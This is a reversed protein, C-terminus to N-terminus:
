SLWHKLIKRLKARAIHLNSRVTAEPCKLTAAIEAKSFGEVDHLIATLRQKPPLQALARHIETILEKNQYEDFPTTVKRALDLQVNPALLETDSASDHGRQKRVLDIAYNTAIRLVFSSFYQVEQLEERRNYVRVFTEQVVEDADLHNGLIQFAVSYIKKRYRKVLEAFAERNGHIFSEVLETVDKNM